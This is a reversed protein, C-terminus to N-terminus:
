QAIKDLHQQQERHSQDETETVLSNTKPLLSRSKTPLTIIKSIYRGSLKTYIMSRNIWGARPRKGIHHAQILTPVQSKNEKNRDTLEAKEAELSHTEGQRQTNQNALEGRAAELADIQSKCQVVQGLVAGKAAELGHIESEYQTIQTSLADKDANLMQVPVQLQEIQESLAEEIKRIADQLNEIGPEQEDNRASLNTKM